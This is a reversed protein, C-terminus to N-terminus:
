LEEGSMNVAIRNGAYAGILMFWFLHWSYGMWYGLLWFCALTSLGIIVCSVRGPIWLVNM